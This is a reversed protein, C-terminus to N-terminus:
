FFHCTQTNKSLPSRPSSLPVLKFSPPKISIDVVTTGYVRHVARKRKSNSVSRGLLKLDDFYELVETTTLKHNKYKLANTDTFKMENYAGLMQLHETNECEVFSAISCSKFMGQGVNDDYGQRNRKQKVKKHLVDPVPQLLEVQKFAFKPDLLRPDIKDPAIFHQCVVFIEASQQRSSAPKFSEVKDFM